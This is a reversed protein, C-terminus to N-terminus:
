IIDVSLDEFYKDELKCNGLSDEGGCDTCICKVEENLFKTKTKYDENMLYEPMKSILYDIMNRRSINVKSYTNFSTEQISEM